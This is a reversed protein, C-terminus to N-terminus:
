QRRCARRMQLSAVTFVATDGSLTATGIQAAGDFLLVTGTASGGGTVTVTATYTVSNGYISPNVSSVLATTTARQVISEHLTASTSGENYTDGNYVASLAHTGITLTSTTMAAIGGASVTQTGIVSAGDYFVVTGAPALGGASTATVTATLTLPTNVAAPNSGAGLTTATLGLITETLPVSTSGSHDTDGAYVATISHAGPALSSTSVSATTSTSSGSLTGTGLTQTGDMFTVIGTPTGTGSAVTAIFTVNQGADATPRSSILTVTTSNLALAQGELTIVLPSNGMAGTLDIHGLLPNGAQSPAFEAGVLCDADVVLSGTTTCSTTASDVAANADPTVGSLVLDENGDNEMGQSQPPSTQGQRIATPYTLLVTRSDVGRVRNDFYDAVYLAGSPAVLVSYPGYLGAQDAPGGDGSYKDAGNGFITNITGKVVKRIRSNQTDAIYLNDAADFALGSPSYMTAAAAPGGDGSFGQAGDGAITTITGGNVERVRNNASDAIYLHGASDFALAYPQKLQAATAPGGDGAFGATGDGAVTTILGTTASVMRVRQNLTDAIYLNGATDFAVENPTDLEAATAPGNDGGYGQTGNGAVTTIVGTAGDVRRIVNNASDAIYLNGAGDVALGHPANLTASTAPGGDGTYGPKGDGAYTTITQTVADVRRIRDTTSDSDSIYLDGAGDVAVAFPLDLDASTAPGNDKPTVFEGDGAVTTATGPVFVGLAGNGFGSLMTTGMPVGAGNLLVVAGPRRGPYKPTFTVAVTCSDGVAYSSGPACTGGANEGYDLGATGQTLAEVQAAQGAVSVQVTVLQASSSSGVETAPFSSQALLSGAPLSAFAAILWARGGRLLALRVARAFCSVPTPPPTNM